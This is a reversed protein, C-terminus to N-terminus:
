IRKRGSVKRRLDPKHSRKKNSKMNYLKKSLGEINMYDNNLSARENFAHQMAKNMMEILNDYSAKDITTSILSLEHAIKRKYISDEYDDNEDNPQSLLDARKRIVDYQRREIEEFETTQNNITSELNMRELVLSRIERQLRQSKIVKNTRMLSSDKLFHDIIRKSKIINTSFSGNLDEIAIQLSKLNSYMREKRNQEKEYSVALDKNLETKIQDFIDIVKNELSKVKRSLYSDNTSNLEKSISNSLNDILSDFEPNFPMQYSPRMLSSFENLFLRQFQSSAKDFANEVGIEIAMKTPRPKKNISKIMNNPDPSINLSVSSFQENQLNAITQTKNQHINDESSFSPASDSPLDSPSYQNFNDVKNHSIVKEKQTPEKEKQTAPNQPTPQKQKSVNEAQTKKPSNNNPNQINQKSSSKISQKIKQTSESLEAKNNHKSSSNVVANVIGFRVPSKSANAKPQSSTNNKTDSHNSHSSSMHNSASEDKSIDSLDSLRSNERSIPAVTKIPSNTIVSTTQFTEASDPITMVAHKSQGFEQNESNEGHSSSSFMKSQLNNDQNDPDKSHNSTTNKEKSPTNQPQINEEKQKTSQTHSEITEDGSPFSFDDDAFLDSQEQNSGLNEDINNNTAETTQIPAPKTDVPISDNSQTPFDSHDISSLKSINQNLNDDHISSLTANTSKKRAPILPNPALDDDFGTFTISDNTKSIRVDQIPNAKFFNDIDDEDNNSKADSEIFFDNDFNNSTSKTMNNQQQTPPDKNVLSANHSTSINPTSNLTISDNKNESSEKDNDVDLDPFEIPGLDSDENKSSKKEDSSLNLDIDDFLPELEFKPKNEENNNSQVSSNRGALRAPVLPQKSLNLFDNGKDSITISSATTTPTPNLASFNIVSLKKPAQQELPPFEFDDDDDKNSSNKDSHDNLNNNIVNILDNEINADESKETGFSQGDAFDDSNFEFGDFDSM